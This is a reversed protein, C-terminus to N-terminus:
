FIDCLFYLNSYYIFNKSFIFIKILIKKIIGSLAQIELEKEAIIRKFRSDEDELLKLIKSQSSS